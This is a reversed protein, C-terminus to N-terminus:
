VAKQLAGSYLVETLQRETGNIMMSHCDCITKVSEHVNGMFGAKPYACFLTFTNKAMFNNWLHELQVTAGHYGKEWLLAVMEGFARVRRGKSIAREFLPEITKIFM